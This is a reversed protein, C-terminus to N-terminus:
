PWSPPLGGEEGYHKIDKYPFLFSYLPLLIYLTLFPLGDRPRGKVGRRRRIAVYAAFCQLLPDREPQEDEDWLEMPRRLTASPHVTKPLGVSVLTSM